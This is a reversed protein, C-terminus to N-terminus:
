RKALMLARWFADNFSDRPTGGAAGLRVVVLELSPVVYVKRDLAGQMAVLDPPASPILPGGARRAQEGASLSFAQGNLWWLYGYSPNLAQSRALMDRQYEASGLVKEGKWSGGALILLGFRALDRATTSFGWGIRPDGFERRTWSSSRMGIKRTLWASTLAGRDMGSATELVPMITHYAPTNYRWETGPPASATLDTALGSTMTLLHGITILREETEAAASWGSGLYKSVPDDLAVLGREVAVGVLAAVISKQASAVDEIRHGMSDTGGLMSRYLAPPDSPEWYEEAMIRGRHLIVVGSSSREAAVRLASAVLEPDWGVSEPDVTEWSGDDPPFYLEQGRVRHAPWGTALALALVLIPGREAASL